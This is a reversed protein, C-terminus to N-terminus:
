PQITGYPFVLVHISINAIIPVQPTKQAQGEFLHGLAMLSRLYSNQTDITFTEM